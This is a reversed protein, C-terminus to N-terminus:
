TFTQIIQLSRIETFGTILRNGITIIATIISSCTKLTEVLIEKSGIRGTRQTKIVYWVATKTVAYRKASLAPYFKENVSSVSACRAINSL